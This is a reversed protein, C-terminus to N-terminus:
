ATEVAPEAQPQQATRPQLTCAYFGAWIFLIGIFEGIYLAEVMGAKAMGGGIGPMIAGTAILTNGIARNRSSAAKKEIFAPRSEPTNIKGCEPCTTQQWPQEAFQELVYGCRECGTYPMRAMRAFRVASLIAGGILFLAAYSNILPTMLRVWQWALVDGGPKHALMADINVPSFVVFVSVVVIFPVTIASLVHATRRRLLLYVTGQALPYGGLLAGAIYWAKTLVITNGFLTITSELATGLGYCAVGFGWWLLHPGSRRILYRRFIITAFAISVLTTAIPLYHVFAVSQDAM